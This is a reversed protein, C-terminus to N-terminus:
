SNKSVLELSVEKAKNDNSFANEPLRLVINNDIISSYLGMFNMINRSNNIILNYSYLARVCDKVDQENRLVWVNKYKNDIFIKSIYNDVDKLRVYHERNFQCSKNCCGLCSQLDCVFDDKQKIFNFLKSKSFIIYGNSSIEVNEHIVYRFILMTFDSYNTMGSTVKNANFDRLKKITQISGEATSTYWDVCDNLNKFIKIDGMKLKFRLDERIYEESECLLENQFEREIAEMIEDSLFVLPKNKTVEELYKDNSSLLKDTDVRTFVFNDKFSIYNFGEENRVIIDILHKDEKDVEYQGIYKFLDIFKESSTYSNYELYKLYLGELTESYLINDNLTENRIRDVNFDEGFYNDLTYKIKNEIELNKM